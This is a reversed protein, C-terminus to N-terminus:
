NSCQEGGAVRGRLSLLWTLPHDDWDGQMCSINRNTRNRSPQCLPQPIWFEITPTVCGPCSKERCCLFSQVTRKHILNGGEHRCDQQAWPRLDRLRGCDQSAGRGASWRCNLWISGKLTGSLDWFNLSVCGIFFIKRCQLKGTPSPQPKRVRDDPLGIVTPDLSDMDLSTCQLIILHISWVKSPGAWRM